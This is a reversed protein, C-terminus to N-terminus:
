KNQAWLWSVQNKKDQLKIGAKLLQDRVADCATMLEARQKRDQLAYSRVARRFEAAADVVASLRGDAAPEAAQCHLPVGLRELHGILRHSAALLAAAPVADGASEVHRRVLLMTEWLVDLALRTEFRNLHRHYRAEEESLVQLISLDSEPQASPCELIGAVRTEVSFLFQQYFRMAGEAQETSGDTELLASLRLLEARQTQLYDRLTQSSAAAAGAPESVDVVLSAGDALRDELLELQKNRFVTPPKPVGVSRLSMWFDSELDGTKPSANYFGWLQVHNVDKLDCFIRRCIDLRLVKMAQPVSLPLAQADTKVLTVLLPREDARVKGLFAQVQAQIHRVCTRQLRCGATLMRLCQASQMMSLRRTTRKAVKPMRGAAVHPAM